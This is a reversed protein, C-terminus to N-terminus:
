GPKGIESDEGKRASLGGTWGGPFSTSFAVSTMFSRAYSPHYTEQGISRHDTYYRALMYHHHPYPSEQIRSGVPVLTPVAVEHYQLLLANTSTSHICCGAM